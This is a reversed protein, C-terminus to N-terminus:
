INAPRTICRQQCGRDNISTFSWCNMHFKPKANGSHSHTVIAVKIHIYATAAANATSPSTVGHCIEYAAIALPPVCQPRPSRKETDSDNKKAVKGSLNVDLGRCVM